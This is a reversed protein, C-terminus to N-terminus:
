RGLCSSVEFTGIQLVKSLAAPLKPERVRKAPRRPPPADSLSVNRGLQQPPTTSPGQPQSAPPAAPVSNPASM